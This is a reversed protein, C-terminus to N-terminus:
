NLKSVPLQEFSPSKNIVRICFCKMMGLKRKDHSAQRCHYCHSVMLLTDAEAASTFPKFAGARIKIGNKANGLISGHRGRGSAAYNGV